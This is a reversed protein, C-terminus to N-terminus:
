TLSLTQVQSRLELTVDGLRHTLQRLILSQAKDLKDKLLSTQEGEQLADQYVRAQKLESLGLMQEIAERSLKPFQYVIVTKLIELIASFQPHISSRQQVRSLEKAQVLMGM